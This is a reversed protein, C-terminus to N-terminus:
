RACRFGLNSLTYAGGLSGRFARRMFSAYDSPDRAGTSGAGCSQREPPPEANWDETWEWVVRGLDHVGNKDATTAGAPPLEKPAVHAYWDLLTRTFNADGSMGAWDQEDSRPLRMGHDACYARAAFWSVQTVPRARAAEDGPDLDARWSKLYEAEAWARAVRSRQWEPHRAVFAAFEGANVPRTQLQFAGVTPGAPITALAVLVGIM